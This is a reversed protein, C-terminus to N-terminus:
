AAIEETQTGIGDLALQDFTWGADELATTVIRCAVAERLWRFAARDGADEPDLPRGTAVLWAWLRGYLPWGTHNTTVWHAATDLQTDTLEFLGHTTM